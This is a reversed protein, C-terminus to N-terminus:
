TGCGDLVVTRLGRPRQNIYNYKIILTYIDLTQIPKDLLSYLAAYHSADYSKCKM